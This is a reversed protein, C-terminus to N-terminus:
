VDRTGRWDQLANRVDEIVDTWEGLARQRFLRMSPYWPSDTRDIMWRWDAHAPVLVWVPLGAAGALHAVSTDVTILLDLTQLVALTDSFDNIAPGLTHLDFTNKLDLAQQELPGKQISFWTLGPQALLPKLADLEISRRHDFPHNPNGAWVLGIRKRNTCPKIPAIDDLCTKWHNMKEMPTGIYPMALPLMSLNLNMHEPMRLMRCWYRYPTTPRATWVARVGSATRAVEGLPADVWVDVTAGQRHLWDAMRLFQIQDGFGLEGVLLFTCGAVPEGTWEPFDLCVAAKFYETKDRWNLRQWGSEFAGFALELSALTFQIQANHPFFRVAEVCHTRLGSLDALSDFAYMANFHLSENHPDLVLGQRAVTIAQRFYRICNLTYALDKLADADSAFSSRIAEVVLDIEDHREAKALAKILDLGDALGGPNITWARLSYTAADAVYGLQTSIKALSRAAHHLGPEIELAKAYHSRAEDLRQSLRLCDALNRHITVTSGSLDLARLYFAEAATWDESIGALLGRQEWIDARRPAALSAKRLFERAQELQNGLISALGARYLADVHQPHLSLVQRYEDIAEPLRNGSFYADARAM